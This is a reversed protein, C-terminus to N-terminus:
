CLWKPLMAKDVFTTVVVVVISNNQKSNLLLHQEDTFGNSDLAEKIQM